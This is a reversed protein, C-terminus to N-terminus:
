KGKKVGSRPVIPAPQVTKPAAPQVIPAPGAELFVLMDLVESKTLGNALGTPMASLKSVAQDEISSRDIKIV